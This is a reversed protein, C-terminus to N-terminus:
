KGELRFYACISKLLCEPCRPETPRCIERGLFSLSMGADNWYERPIVEMLKQEIKEPKEESTMGIRPVVRLVHLDVIIGEAPGGSERIIVNASKRGIGPFATLGEMTKPLGADDKVEKAIGVLWQAKKKSSRVSRIVDYLDEPKAKSLQKLTPYKAFFAPALANIRDDTMQSSLIVLVILEYLNHYDLPHKRGRYKRILPLLHKMWDTKGVESVASKKKKNRSSQM